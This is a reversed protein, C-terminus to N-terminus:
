TLTLKSIKNQFNYNNYLTITVHNWWIIKNAMLDLLIESLRYETVVKNRDAKQYIM